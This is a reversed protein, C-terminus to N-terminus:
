YCDKSRKAKPYLSAHWFSLGILAFGAITHTRLSTRTRNFGTYTLVALSVGMGIKALERQQKMTLLPKSVSKDM